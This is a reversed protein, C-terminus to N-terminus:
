VRRRSAFRATDAQARRGRVDDPDRDKQLAALAQQEQRELRGQHKLVAKAAQEGPLPLGHVHAQVGYEFCNMPHEYFGDKKPVWFTGLRTSHRADDEYVYGAELADIFYNEFREEFDGAVFGVLMWREGDVLFAEDGNVQRRMYTAARENAAHRREPQNADSLYQPLVLKGKADKVGHTVYWDHLIGVPTGRIGQANENAGAPDCTAEVARRTPFWLDRYKEVIPLFADLHLDCGMVGGLVRLWGWPAYQYWVVCPHHYGYDYAECLPLAPNLDLSSVHRARDFAGPQGNYAGYVPQGKVDLGRRGELKVPRQPHGIPYLLEAAEITVPSLNHKNDWISLTIYRHNPLANTKRWKRAIWHTEPVPNPSVIMQQPYGPQSLRLAAENYVDEPVEELQDIYFKAVTLGRIPGYRNDKQNTKLHVCYVRSGNDFDYCSERANWMGFDCAMLECVNRWDPILKQNLDGETWRAIAIKIGPYEEIDRRLKILITWTKASRLAGEVDLFRDEARLIERHVPGLKVEVVRPEVTMLSFLLALFM